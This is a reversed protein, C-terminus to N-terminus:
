KLIIGQWQHPPSPSRNSTEKASCMWVGTREKVAATWHTHLQTASQPWQHHRLIAPHSWVPCFVVIWWIMCSHYEILQTPILRQIWNNKKSLDQTSVTYIYLYTDVGQSKLVSCWKMSNEKMECSFCFHLNRWLPSLAQYPAYLWKESYLCLHTTYLWVCFYLLIMISHGKKEWDLCYGTVGSHSKETRELFWYSM